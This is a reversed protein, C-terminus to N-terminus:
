RVRLDADTLDADVTVPAPAAGATVQRTALAHVAVTM